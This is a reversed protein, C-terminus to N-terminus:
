NFNLNYFNVFDKFFQSDKTNIKDLIPLNTDSHRVTIIELIEETNIDIVAIDDWSGDNPTHAANIVAFCNGDKVSINKFLNIEKLLEDPVNYKTALYFRVNYRGSLDYPNGFKEELINENKKDVYKKVKINCSVFLEEQRQKLNNQNNVYLVGGISGAIIVTGIIIALVISETKTM